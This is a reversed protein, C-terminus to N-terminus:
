ALELAVGRPRLAFAFALWATTGPVEVPSKPDFSLAFLDAGVFLFAFWFSAGGGLGDGETSLDSGGGGLGEGLARFGGLGAM